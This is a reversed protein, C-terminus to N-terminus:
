GYGLQPDFKVLLHPVIKKVKTSPIGYTLSTLHIVDHIQSVKCLFGGLWQTIHHAKLSTDLGCINELSNNGCLLQPHKTAHLAEILSHLNQHSATKQHPTMHSSPNPTAVLWGIMTSCLFWYRLSLLPSNLVSM